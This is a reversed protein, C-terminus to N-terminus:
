IIEDSAMDSMMYYGRSARKEGFNQRLCRNNSQPRYM